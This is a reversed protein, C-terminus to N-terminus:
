HQLRRRGLLVVLLLLISTGLLATPIPYELGFIIPTLLVRTGTKVTPHTSIFAAVPPSLRYYETVFWRGGATKLLINDRFQRLVYVHPDLYSGFASTAIFCGESTDIILKGNQIATAIKENVAAEDIEILTESGPNGITEFEIGLLTVLGTLPQSSAMSIRIKGPTELNVAMLFDETQQSKKVTVATAIDQDYTIILDLAYVQGSGADIKVPIEVINGWSTTAEEVILNVDQSEQIGTGDSWNGSVDGILIASFNQGSLNSQVSNYSREPPNFTWVKGIGPFPVDRLGASKELLYSADM